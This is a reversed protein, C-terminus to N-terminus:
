LVSRFKLSKIIVICPLMDDPGIKPVHVMMRNLELYLWMLAALSSMLSAKELSALTCM